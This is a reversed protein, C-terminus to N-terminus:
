TRSMGAAMRGLTEAMAKALEQDDVLTDAIARSMADVWQDATEKTVGIKGHLTMVCAGPREDFWDRPGGMWANLFGALSTRMPALDEAHMQRLALYAPDTEMLDYFRETIARVVAAGGARDYPTQPKVPADM